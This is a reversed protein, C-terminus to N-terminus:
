YLSNNGTCTKIESYKEAVLLDVRAIAIAREQPTNTESDSIEFEDIINTQISQEYSFTTHAIRCTDSGAAGSVVCVNPTDIKTCKDIEANGAFIDSSLFECADPTGALNDTITTKTYMFYANASFEDPVITPDRLVQTYSHILPILHTFQM